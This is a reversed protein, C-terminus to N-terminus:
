TSSSTEAYRNVLEGFLASLGRALLMGAFVILPIIVLIGVFIITGEEIDPNNAYFDDKAGDWTVLFVSILIFLIVGVLAGVADVVFEKDSKSM